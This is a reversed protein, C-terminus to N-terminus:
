SSSRLKSRGLTGLARVSDPGAKTCMDQMLKSKRCSYRKVTWIPLCFLCAKLINCKLPPNGTPNGLPKPILHCFLLHLNLLPPGNCFSHPSYHISFNPFLQDPASPQAYLSSPQSRVNPRIGEEFVGSVENVCHWLPSGNGFYEMFGANQSLAMRKIRDYIDEWPNPHQGQGAM